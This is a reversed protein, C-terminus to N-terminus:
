PFLVLLRVKLLPHLHGGEPPLGKAKFNYEKSNWIRGPVVVESLSELVAFCVALFSFSAVAAALSSFSAVLLLPPTRLFSLLLSPPSRLFVASFNPFQPKLKM